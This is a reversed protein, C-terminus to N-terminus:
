STDSLHVATTSMQINYLDITEYSCIELCIGEAKHNPGTAADFHASM